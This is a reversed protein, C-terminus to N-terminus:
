QSIVVNQPKFRRIASKNASFTMKEIAKEVVKEFDESKMNSLVASARDTYDKGNEDTKYRVFVYYGSTGNKVLTPTDFKAKFFEVNVKDPDDSTDKTVFTAATSVEEEHDHDHEEGEEHVHEEEEEKIAGDVWKSEANILDDINEGKNLRTVYGEAFKKLDDKQEDTAASETSVGKFHASYKVDIYKIKAYNKLFFDKREKETVTEKGKDSYYFEFVKQYKEKTRTQWKISILFLFVNKRLCIKWNVLLFIDRM